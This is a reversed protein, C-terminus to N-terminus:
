ADRDESIEIYTKGAHEVAAWRDPDEGIKIWFHTGEIGLVPVKQGKVLDGLDAFRTDPGSRVNMVGAMVTGVLAGPKKSETEEGAEGVPVAPANGWSFSRIVEWLEM